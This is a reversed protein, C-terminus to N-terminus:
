LKHQKVHAVEDQVAKQVQATEELSKVRILYKQPKGDAGGFALLAVEKKGEIPTAETGVTTIRANLVIRGSGEVRCLIRSLGAAEPRQDRNIKFIVVGLDV